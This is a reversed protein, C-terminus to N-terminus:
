FNTLWSMSHFARSIVSALVFTLGTHYRPSETGLFTQPTVINIVCYLFFATSTSVQRRTFGATNTGIVAMIVTYNAGSCSIIIISALRRNQYVAEAPTVFLLVIGVLAIISASAVLPQKMNRFRPLLTPPGSVLLQTVAQVAYNPATYLQAKLASYGFGKIIIGLFNTTVNGAAQSFFMQLVMMWFKYDRVTEKLQSWKFHTNKVGLQDDALHKVVIAKSRADLWGASLPSDPMYLWLALGTICSLLGLLLFILRWPALPGSDVHGLAWYIVLFPVPMVGNTVTWLGFRLSQENQNYWMTTILMLGPVLASEFLGLIFRLAMLTAFNQAGVCGLLSCGWVFYAAGIVRGAHFYQLARGSFFSGALYGFYFM